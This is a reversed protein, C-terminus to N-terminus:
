RIILMTGPAIPAPGTLVINNFLAAGSSIRLVAANFADLHDGSTQSGAVNYRETEGEMVLLKTDTQTESVRTVSFTFQYDTNDQFAFNTSGGSTTIATSGVTGYTPYQNGAGTTFNSVERRAINSGNSRIFTTYGAYTEESSRSAWNGATIDGGTIEYLGVRFIGTNSTPRFDFSLTITDGVAITQLPFSRGIVENGGTDAFTFSLRGGVNTLIQSGSSYAKYWDGTGEEFTDTFIVQAHGTSVFAALVMVVVLWRCGGRLAGTLVNWRNTRM